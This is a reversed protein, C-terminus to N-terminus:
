RYGSEHTTADGIEIEPMQLGPENGQTAGAQQLAELLQDESILDRLIIPDGPSNAPYIALLPISRSGLALLEQKIEDNRDTWDAILPEVSNAEVVSKVKETNIAFKLNAKCTLCWDATFDVLVTKGSAQAAALSNQSYPKWPLEKNSPAIFSFAVVGTAVAVATGGFWARFRPGAGATLPTRGVWWCALGVAVLTTLMPLYFQRSITSLLFVVTGMLVFGMLQKFTEMWAGPKPLANVLGPFLGILLYPSAMGLGVFTFILFVVEPSQTLTFGFVPGLFPGSCPTALITTFVGKFFAGDLGEKAQLDNAKGAGAFGPIPIEWVGLFSLAMAFVLVIMGVKFWLLTYLEGWGYGAVVALTAPLLFVGIIGASYAVNLALAKGQSQGAQEAFSLVKLGIVPLVCPMLNLILGGLLAGGLILWLPTTDAAETETAQQDTLPPSDPTTTGATLLQAADAPLVGQRAEFTFDLPVCTTAQCAQLEIEGSLVLASPDVGEALQIPAVWTVSEVHEEITLGDWIEYDVHSKPLTTPAFQGLLTYDASESPRIVTAGPGGPAQTTSYIHYGPDISATIVLAAPRQDEAPAFMASVRVPDDEQPGDLTIGLNFSSSNPIQFSKPPDIQGSAKACYLALLLAVPTSRRIVPSLM